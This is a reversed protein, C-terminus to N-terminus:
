DSIQAWIDLLCPQTFDWSHALRLAFKFQSLIKNFYNWEEADKVFSKLRDSEKWSSVELGKPRTLQSNQIHLSVHVVELFGEEWHNFVGIEMRHDTLHTLLLRNERTQSYIRFHFLWFYSTRWWFKRVLAWKETSQLADQQKKWSKVAKQDYDFEIQSCNHLSM